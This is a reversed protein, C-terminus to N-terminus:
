DNVMLLRKVLAGVKDLNKLDLRMVRTSLFNGECREFTSVRIVCLDEAGRERTEWVLCM